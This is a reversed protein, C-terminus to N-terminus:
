VQSMTPGGKRIGPARMNVGSSRGGLFSFFTTVAFCAFAFYLFATAAQAERCRNGTNNAGNTIHNSRTYSRNSCSHVGLGAALATAGAFIFLTNLADLAIPIIPHGTFSDNFAVAVLYFLSLMAFVAVFINYNVTAPNGNTAQAIMAAILALVVLMFFFQLGRLILNLARSVM